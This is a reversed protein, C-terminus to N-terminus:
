KEIATRFSFRVRGKRFNHVGKNGPKHRQLIQQLDVAVIFFDFFVSGRAKTATDVARRM